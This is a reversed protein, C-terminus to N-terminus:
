SYITISIYQSTVFREHKEFRKCADRIIASKIRARDLRALRLECTWRSFGVRPLAIEHLRDSDRSVYLTGAEREGKRTRKTTGGTRKYIRNYFSGGHKPSWCSPLSPSLSFFLSLSHLSCNVIHVTSEVRLLFLSIRIRLSWRGPENELSYVRRSNFRGRAIPNLEDEFGMIWPSSGHSIWGASLLLM